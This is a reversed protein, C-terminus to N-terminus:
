EDMILTITDQRREEPKGHHREIIETAVDQRLKDDAIELGEAKVQAARVLARRLIEASIILGDFALLEVARDIPAGRYKWQAVNDPTVGIARAAEADTTHYPRESVYRLQIPSLRQCVRRLEENDMTVGQQEDGVM